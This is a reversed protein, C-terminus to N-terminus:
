GQFRVLAIGILIVIITACIFVGDMDGDCGGQRQSSLSRELEEEAVWEKSELM